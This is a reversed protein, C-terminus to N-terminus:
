WAPISVFLLHDFPSWELNPDDARLDDDRLDDARLDGGRLDGGRLDGGRVAAPPEADAVEPETAAAPATEADTATESPADEGCGALSSILFVFVSLSLPRRIDLISISPM